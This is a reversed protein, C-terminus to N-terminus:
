KLYLSLHRSSHLYQQLPYIMMVQAVIRKKIQNGQFAQSYLTLRQQRKTKKRKNKFKQPTQILKQQNTLQLIQVVLM